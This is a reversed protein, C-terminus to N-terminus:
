CDTDTNSGRIEGLNERPLTTEFSPVIIVGQLFTLLGSFQYEFNVVESRVYRIDLFVEPDVSPDGTIVAGTENLYELSLNASTFGGPANRPVALGPIEDKDAVNCVVGLRAAVRTMENILQLSYMYRGVEIVGLILVLLASSILTFEIITIGRQSRM